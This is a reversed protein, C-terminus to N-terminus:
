CDDGGEKRLDAGCMPCFSIPEYTTVNVTSCDQELTLVFKGDRKGIYVYTDRVYDLHSLSIVCDSGNCYECSM